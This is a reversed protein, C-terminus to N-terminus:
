VGSSSKEKKFFLQYIIQLNAFGIIVVSLVKSINKSTVGDEFVWYTNWNYSFWACTLILTTIKTIPNSFYSMITNKM